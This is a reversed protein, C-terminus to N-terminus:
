STPPSGDGSSSGQQRGFMYGIVAALLPFVPTLLFIQGLDKISTVWSSRADAWAQGADANADTTTRLVDELTPFTFWGYVFLLALEFGILLLLWLFIKYGIRQTPTIGVSTDIGLESVIEDISIDDPPPADATTIPANSM